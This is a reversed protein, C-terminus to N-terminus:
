VIQSFCPPITRFLERKKHYISKICFLLLVKTTIFFPLISHEAGLPSVKNLSAIVRILPLASRMTFRFFFNRNLSPVALCPLVVEIVDLVVEREEVVVTVVQAVDTLHPLRVTTVGWKM